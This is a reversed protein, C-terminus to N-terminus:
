PNVMVSGDGSSAVENTIDQVVKSLQENSLNLNVIANLVEVMYRTSMGKDMFAALIMDKPNMGEDLQEKILQKLYAKTLKM